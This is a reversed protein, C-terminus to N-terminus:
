KLFVASKNLISISKMVVKKIRILNQPSAKNWAEEVSAGLKSNKKLLNEPDFLFVQKNELFM